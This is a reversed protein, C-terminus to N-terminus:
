NLQLQLSPGRQACADVAGDLSKLHKGECPPIRTGQTTLGGASEKRGDTVVPENLWEKVVTMSKAGVNRSIAPM